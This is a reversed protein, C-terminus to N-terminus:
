DERPDWDAMFNSGEKTLPTFDLDDSELAKLCIQWPGEPTPARSFVILTGDPSFRADHQVDAGFTIQEWDRGDVGVQFVHGNTTQCLMRKGDRSWCPTCCAEEAKLALPDRGDAGLIFIGVNGTHRSAVALRKGDPSWAPVGCREWSEPTVRREAGSTLDRVWAQNDRIFVISKGDPSWDGQAGKTVAGPNSADRKMKWVEPFGGRLTTFLIEKGDPSFRPDAKPNEDQTLRQPDKGSPKMRWLNLTGSRDSVFLLTGKLKSLDIKGGSSSPPPAAVPAPPPSPTGGSATPAPSPSPAARTTRAVASRVRRFGYKDTGFCADSFVQLDKFRTASRCLEPASDCAGGRLVRTQGAAPGRPNEKPSEKYFAAGYYDNCWEWVNGAMDYLGWPNPAKTGVPHTTGASQPKCWAFDSIRAPDDGFFYKTKTGARCAYEWEAETPLRYGSADFDCSWTKPDYCPVLGEQESCKNCFRAADVWQVQEVPANPDKRKSPNKGMAKQFQAQTVPAKDIHFGQVFVVHPAEDARGDAQGMLFEGAALLVM